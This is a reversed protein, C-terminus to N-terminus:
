RQELLDFLRRFGAQAHGVLRPDVRKPTSSFKVVVTQSRRDIDLLQGGLGNGSYHGRAPEYVWWCDHYQADPYREDASYGARFDAILQPDATVARDVWWAPVVQRDGVMGRQLHMQGFRALDRPTACFGGEVVPFGKSDVILDADHEAGIRSWIRQSFADAFRQGTVEEAIWGLMATLISRYEYHSGHPTSAPLQRIWTATDRPIDDRRHTTYGSVQEILVGPADLDDMDHEDFAIGARMDLLHQVTCGRWETLEPVFDTVDQDVTLLGEDVLRGILTATLSKSVSMLIHRDTPQVGVDYYDYILQGRHLVVCSDTYTGLLVQELDGLESPDIRAETLELPAGSGASVVATNTLDRVRLFGYRNYPPDIWNASTVSSAIGLEAASPPRVDQVNTHKMQVRAM